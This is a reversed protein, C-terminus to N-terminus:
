EQKPIGHPSGLNPSSCSSCVEIFSKYVALYVTHVDKHDVPLEMLAAIVEKGYHQVIAVSVACLVCYLVSLVCFKAHLVSFM